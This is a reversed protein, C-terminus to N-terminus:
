MPPWIRNHASATAGDALKRSLQVFVLGNLTDIRWAEFQDLEHAAFRALLVRLMESEDDSLRGGPPPEAVM